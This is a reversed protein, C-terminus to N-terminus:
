VAADPHLDHVLEFNGKLHLVVGLLSGLMLLVMVGRLTLFTSRQPKLLAAALAVLGIACLFFPIWQNLEKTHTELVLEVITGALIFASVILLFRRLWSEVPTASM